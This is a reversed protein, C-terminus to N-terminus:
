ADAKDDEEAKELRAIQDSLADELGVLVDAYAAHCRRARHHTSEVLGATRRGSRNGAIPVPEARHLWKGRDPQMSGIQELLGHHLRFTKPRYQVTAGQM